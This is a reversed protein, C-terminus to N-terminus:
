NQRVEIITYGNQLLGEFHKISDELDDLYPKSPNSQKMEDDLYSKMIELRKAIDASM